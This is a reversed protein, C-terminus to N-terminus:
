GIKVFVNVVRVWFWSTNIVSSCGTGWGFAQTFISIPDRPPSIVQSGRTLTVNLEEERSLHQFRIKCRNSYSRVNTSTAFFLFTGKSTAVEVEICAEVVPLPSMCDWGYHHWGHDCHKM